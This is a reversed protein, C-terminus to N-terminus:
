AALEHTQLPYGKDRYHKFRARSAARQAADGSVVELVRDFRGFWAPVDDDLNILVELHSEPPDAEGILVRPLPSELPQGLWREHALFSGQRVTWLAGDILEQLDPKARVFVAQGSGVAKDCLRCATMVSDTVTGEPLVYFDVRTM